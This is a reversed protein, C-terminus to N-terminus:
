LFLLMLSVLFHIFLNMLELADSAFVDVGVADGILGACEMAKGRVVGQDPSAASVLISKIGPMFSAYYPLFSDASVQAVCRFCMTQM